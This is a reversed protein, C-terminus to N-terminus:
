RVNAIPQFIEFFIVFLFLWNFVIAMVKIFKILSNIVVHSYIIYIHGCIYIIYTHTYVRVHLVSCVSMLEMKSLQYSIHTCMYMVYMYTHVYM